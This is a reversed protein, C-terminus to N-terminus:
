AFKRREVIFPISLLFGHLVALVWATNAFIPLFLQIIWWSFPISVVGLMIGIIINGWHISQNNDDLGEKRISYVWKNYKELNSLIIYMYCFSFSIWVRAILDLSPSGLFLSRNIKPSIVMLLIIICIPLVIKYVLTIVDSFTELIQNHKAMSFGRADISEKEIKLV